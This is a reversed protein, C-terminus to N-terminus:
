FTEFHRMAGDVGLKKVLEDFDENEKQKNALYLQHMRELDGNNLKKFINPYKVQLVMKAGELTVNCDIVIMIIQTEKYSFM